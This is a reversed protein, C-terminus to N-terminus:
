FLVCAELLEAGGDLRTAGVYAEGHDAPVDEDNAGHGLVGELRRDLSGGRVVPEDDLVADPDHRPSFPKRRFRRLESTLLLIM